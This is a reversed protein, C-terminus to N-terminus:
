FQKIAKGNVQARSIYISQSEGDEEQQMRALLYHWNKAMWAYTARDNDKRSRMIKVTNVKGLPTDLVEEGIIEFRYSRLHNNQAIEYALEDRGEMIDKQLQIQYSLKDQVGETKELKWTEGQLNTVTGRDWDFRLGADRNRGLGRRKYSYELPRVNGKEDWTFRTREDISGVWSKALFRLQQTGDANRTLEHTVTIAIGMLRTRYENSFTEPMGAHSALSWVATSVFLLLTTIPRCIAPM